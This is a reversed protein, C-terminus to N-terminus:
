PNALSVRADTAENESQAIVRLAGLRSSGGRLTLLSQASLEVADHLRANVNKVVPADRGGLGVNIM